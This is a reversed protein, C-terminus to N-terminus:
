VEFPRYTFIWLIRTCRSLPAWVHRPCAGGPAREAREARGPTQTQRGRGRKAPVIQARLQHHLAFVGHCRVLNVRRAPIFSALRAIFDLSEFIVHTTGDSCVFSGIQRQPRVDKQFRRDSRPSNLLSSSDIHVPM